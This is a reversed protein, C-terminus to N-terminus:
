RGGREKREGGKVETMGERGRGGGKVDRWGEGGEM